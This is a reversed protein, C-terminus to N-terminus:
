AEVLAIKVSTNPQCERIIIINKLYINWSKNTM